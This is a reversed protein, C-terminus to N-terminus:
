RTEHVPRYRNQYKKFDVLVLVSVEGGRKDLGANPRRKTMKAWAAGDSQGGELVSM